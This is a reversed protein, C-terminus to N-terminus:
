SRRSVLVSGVLGRLMLVGGAAAFLPMVLNFSVRSIVLMLGGVILFSFGGVRDVWFTRLGRARFITFVGWIMLVVAVVLWTQSHRDPFKHSVLALWLIFGGLIAVISEILLRLPLLM